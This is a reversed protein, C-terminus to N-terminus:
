QRDSFQSIVIKGKYNELAKELFQVFKDAWVPDIDGTAMLDYISDLWEGELIYYALISAGIDDHRVNSTFGKLELEHIFMKYTDQIPDTASGVAKFDSDFITQKRHKKYLNMQQAFKSQRAHANKGLELDKSLKRNYSSAVDTQNLLHGLADHAFWPLDVDFGPNLFDLNGQVVINIANPNILDKIAEMKKPDDTEGFFMKRIVRIFTSPNYLMGFSGSGVDFPFDPVLIINIDVISDKFFDEVKTINGFTELGKKGIASAFIEPNVDPINKFQYSGEEEPLGLKIGSLAEQILKELQKRSLKM